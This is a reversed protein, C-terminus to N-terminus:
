REYTGTLTAQSLIAGQMARLLGPRDLGTDTELPKDLAYLTFRYHHVGHGKPPYPGGYGIKGWSNKGQRYAFPKTAGGAAPVAEPLGTLAPNLGYIIWHVWPEPTPADPDDCVLALEATALPLGIWVLPPSVDEGDGTYRLPVKEGAAFASSTLSLSM